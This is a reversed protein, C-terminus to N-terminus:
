DYLKKEGSNVTVNLSNELPVLPCSYGHNYHCLPNFAKNFDITMYDTEGHYPMEIYRGGGYTQEGNTRDRFPIFLGSKAELDESYATLKCTTNGLPFSLNCFKYYVPSRSSNTAFVVKEKEIWTIKAKVRYLSDPDFYNLGKFDKVKDPELMKEKIVAEDKQARALYIDRNYPPLGTQKDDSCSLMTVAGTLAVFFMHFQRM